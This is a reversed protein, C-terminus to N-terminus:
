GKRLMEAFENPLVSNNEIARATQEVHYPVEVIQVDIEQEVINVLIYVANPNGHKPKGVSGSNIVHKGNVIQYFPQHTHGCILINQPIMKTVEDLESSDEYLYENIKRPSGHVVLIEYPDITFIAKQPLNKLYRRNQDTIAQNTFRVSLGAWQLAKEDTYDCGCVLEKNGIAKDYNGQISVIHNTRILNIVENPFTAYGVLDGTSIIFDVEDQQIRNLVAALAPLNSHIDGIVAFRM